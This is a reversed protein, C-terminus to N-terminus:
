CRLHATRQPCHRYQLAGPYETTPPVSATLASWSAGKASPASAAAQAAPVEKHSSFQQWLDEETAAQSCRGLVDRVAAVRRFHFGSCPLWARPGLQPGPMASAIRQRWRTRHSAEGPRHRQHQCRCRRRGRGLADRLVALGRRCIHVVHELRCPPVRPRQTPTRFPDRARVRSAHSICSRAGGGGGGFSRLLATPANVSARLTQSERVGGIGGTSFPTNVNAGWFPTAQSTCDVHGDWGVFNQQAELLRNLSYLPLAPATAAKTRIHFPALGPGTRIHFPTLGTGAWSNRNCCGVLM